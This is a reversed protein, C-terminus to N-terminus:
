RKNNNTTQQKDDNNDSNDDDDTNTITTIALLLDLRGQSLRAGGDRRAALGFERSRFLYAYMHMTDMCTRM